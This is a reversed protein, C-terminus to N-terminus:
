FVLNFAGKIVIETTDNFEDGNLIETFGNNSRGVKVQIKEFTYFENQSSKKTLIFHNNEIEVIADTPLALANEENVLIEAQIYMGPIFNSKEKESKLHGHVNITRDNVNVSKGVLFVEAKYPRNKNDPLSFIITQGKKIKNIDKEFVKLELHIHETSVIEVAVSNPDLYQGKTINVKAINGSIPSIVPISSKINSYEIHEPLLNILRLEKALAEMETLTTLYDTEARLYKKKSTINDKLLIKQREWESKLYNLKAKATLYKQQMEIYNPNQLVFLIDGKRIKKGELLNVSKVTGGFFVSVSVKYQPPVDLMGSVQIKESFTKKSIKGLKMGSANFQEKTIKILNNTDEPVNVDINHGNSPNKGCSFVFLTILVISFIIKSFKMKNDKYNM